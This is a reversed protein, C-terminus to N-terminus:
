VGHGAQGVEQGKCISNGGGLIGGGCSARQFGRGLQPFSGREPGGASTAKRVGRIM